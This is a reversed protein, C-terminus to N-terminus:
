IEEREREREMAMRRKRFIREKRELVREKGIQNKRNQM